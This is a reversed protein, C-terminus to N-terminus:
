DADEVAQAPVDPAKKGVLEAIGSEIMRYAEDNDVEVVDGAQQSEDITVRPTLLKVKFM